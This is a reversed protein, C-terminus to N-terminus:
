ETEKGDIVNPARAIGLFNNLLASLARPTGNAGKRLPRNEFVDDDQYIRSLRVSFPRKERCKKRDVHILAWAQVVNHANEMPKFSLLNTPINPLTLLFQWCNNAATSVPFRDYSSCRKSDRGTSTPMWDEQLCESKLVWTGRSFRFGPALASACCIQAILGPARFSHVQYLGVFPAPIRLPELLYACDRLPATAYQLIAGVECPYLHVSGIHVLLRGLLLITAVRPAPWLPPVADPLPLLAADVLLGSRTLSVFLFSIGLISLSQSGTKPPALLCLFIRILFTDLLLASCPHLPCPACLRTWSGLSLTFLQLFSIPSSTKSSM